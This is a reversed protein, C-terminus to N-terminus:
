LCFSLQQFGSSFRANLRKKKKPTGAMLMM